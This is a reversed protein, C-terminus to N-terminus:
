LITGRNDNFPHRVRVWELGVIRAQKRNFIFDERTFAQVFAIRKRKVPRAVDQGHTPQGVPNPFPHMPVLSVEVDIPM